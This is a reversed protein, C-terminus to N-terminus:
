RGFIQVAVRRVGVGGVVLLGFKWFDVVRVSFGQCFSLTFDQSM